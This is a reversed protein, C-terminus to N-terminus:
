KVGKYKWVLYLWFTNVLVICLGGIFSWWQNLSPYYFLNWLGWVSFFATSRWDVGEIKKDKLIARVNFSCAYAGVFEFCGNIIDPLM